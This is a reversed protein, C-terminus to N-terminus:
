SDQGQLSDMKQGVGFIRRTEITPERTEARTGTRKEKNGWMMERGVREEEQNGEKIKKSEKKGQIKGM